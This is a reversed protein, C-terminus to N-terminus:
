ESKSLSPDLIHLTVADGENTIAYNGDFPVDESSLIDATGAVLAYRSIDPPFTLVIGMGERKVQVREEQELRSLVETYHAM